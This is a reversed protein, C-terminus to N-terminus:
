PSIINISMIALIISQILNHQMTIVPRSEIRPTNLMEFWDPFKDYKLHVDIYLRAPLIDLRSKKEKRARAVKAETYTYLSKRAEAIEKPYIRDMGLRTGRLKDGHQLIRETATLVRFRALIPRRPM